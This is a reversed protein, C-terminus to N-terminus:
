TAGSDPSVDFAPFEVPPPADVVVVEPPLEVVELLPSPVPVVIPPLVVPGDVGGQVQTPSTQPTKSQVTTDAPVTQV